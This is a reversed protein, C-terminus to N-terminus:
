VRMTYRDIVDSKPDSFGSEFEPSLIPTEKAAM